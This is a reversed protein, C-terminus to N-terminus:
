CYERPAQADEGQGQPKEEDEWTFYFDLFPIGKPVRRGRASQKKKLPRELALFSHLVEKQVERPQSEQVAFTEGEWFKAMRKYVQVQVPHAQLHRLTLRCLRTSEPAQKSRLPATLEPKNTPPSQIRVELQNPLSQLLAPAPRAPQPLVFPVAKVAVPQQGPEGLYPGPITQFRLLKQLLM